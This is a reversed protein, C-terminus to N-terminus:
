HLPGPQVLRFGKPSQLFQRPVLVLPEDFDCVDDDRCVLGELFAHLTTAGPARGPSLPDNMDVLGWRPARTAWPQTAKPTHAGFASVTSTKRSLSSGCYEGTCGSSRDGLPYKWLTSGTWTPSM